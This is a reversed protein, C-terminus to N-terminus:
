KNFIDEPFDSSGLSQLTFSQGVLDAARKLTNIQGESYPIGSTMAYSVAQDARDGPWRSSTGFYNEEYDLMLQRIRSKAEDLSYKFDLVQAEFTHSIWRSADKSAEPIKVIPGGGTANDIEIFRLMNDGKYGALTSGLPFISGKEENLTSISDAFDTPDLSSKYNKDAVYEPITLKQGSKLCKLCYSVALRVWATDFTLVGGDYPYSIALPNTGIRNTKGAGITYDLHNPDDGMVRVVAATTCTSTGKLDGEASIRQTWIGAAGFHNANYVVVKGYGYERAIQKVLAVAIESSYHGPSGKADITALTPYKQPKIEPETDLRIISSPGVRKVAEELGTGGATGHSFIGRKDAELLAVATANAKTDSYGAAKLVDLSFKYIGNVDFHDRQPM